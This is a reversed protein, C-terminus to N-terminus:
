FLAAAAELQASTMLRSSDGRLSCTHRALIQGRLVSAELSRGELIHSTLFGVALGDGAGNTDVVPLDLPVPPFHRIGDRTGLACGKRGMGAVIIQGPNRKLLRRIFPDPSRHNAASFFLIKSAEIFDQRYPDDLDVVDQLDTAITLGLDRAVPLLHRAWNPLHFHALKAGAMAERCLAPDPSLAMHGKGDYFGRRSGDPFMFNVSRSTGSPDLFLAGTRIGDQRLTTEIYRGAVDDGVYGIFATRRGLRAYGRSAYGGAQGLCDLNETFHGEVKFDLDWGPLYVNTDIGVNGIVVVEPSPERM